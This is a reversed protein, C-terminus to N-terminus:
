QSRLAFVAGFAAMLGALAVALSASGLQATAGIGEPAGAAHAVHALAFLGLGALIWRVARLREWPAPARVLVAAVAAGVVLAAGAIVWWAMAARLNPPNGSAMNQWITGIMLGRNNLLVQAALSTFAGAAIAVLLPM